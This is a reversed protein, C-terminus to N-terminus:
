IKFSALSKGTQQRNGTSKLKPEASAHRPLGRARWL